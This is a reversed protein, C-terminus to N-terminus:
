GGKPIAMHSRPSHAARIRIDTRTAERMTAYILSLSSWVAVSFYLSMWAIEGKWDQWRYSVVWRHAIDRLGQALSLYQHAGAQDTIWRTWYMPVDYWCMFFVYVAGAISWISLLRRHTGTYSTRLRLM